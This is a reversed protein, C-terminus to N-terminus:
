RQHEALRTALTHHGRLRKAHAALDRPGSHQWSQGRGVLNDGLAAHCGTAPRCLQHRRGLKSHAVAAAFRRDGVRVAVAVVLWSHDAPTSDRSAASCSCLFCHMSCALPSLSRTRSIVAQFSTTTSAGVADIVKLTCVTSGTTNTGAATITLWFASSQQAVRVGSDLVLSHNACGVAAVVLPATGHLATLATAASTLDTTTHVPALAVLTPLAHVTLSVSTQAFAGSSDTFRFSLVCSGPKSPM